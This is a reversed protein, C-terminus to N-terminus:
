RRRPPTARRRMRAAGAAALGVGAAGAGGIAVLAVLPAEDGTQALPAGPAEKADPQPQDPEDVPLADAVTVTQEACNLDCEAAMLDDGALLFAFSVLDRGALDTADLDYALRAELDPGSATATIASRVLAAEVDAYELQLRRLAAHDVDHPPLPDLMAPADSGDPAQAVDDRDPAADEPDPGGADPAGPGALAEGLGFAQGLARAYDEVREAPPRTGDPAAVAPLGTSRDMLLGAVTYEAGPVVGRAVIRDVVAVGPQPLVSRDGDAGDRATTALVPAAVAVAQGEDAIDAHSALVADGRHLEEFAVLTRGALATADLDFAVEAIGDAAEPWFTIEATAPRGTGDLAVGEDRGDLGRVHLEGALRYEQGPVLGEYAVLDIVQAARNAAVLRDGDLGDRAETGIRPRTVTVTQDDNALDADTAVPRGDRHLWEFAVLETGDPLDSADLDFTVTATGFGSDPVFSAEASVAAEGTAVPQGTARNMLTGRVTYEAGPILNAFAVVDRVSAAPDAALVKSGDATVSALSTVTPTIVRVTQSFDELDEHSAALRGARDYLREFAVLDGEGTATADFDFALDVAGRPQDPVFTREARVPADGVLAPRGTARDMLTGELRYAEGPVLNAYAVHDVVRAEADAIVLKDGDLADAATTTLYPTGDDPRGDDITGLSVVHGDRTITIGPITVLVLGENAACPLERLTYTDYPLAGRADDPATGPGFWIGAEPDYSGDARNDNANPRQSHPNWSAATSAYGNADTVLVHAEGTTESELRFPVGALREMTDERVKTLELDGRRVLNKFSDKGAFPDVVEGDRTISFSRPEGDTLLYGEGPAVERIAYRGYPLCDPATQAQGGETVLRTVVQGPAYSVGGVWVAREGANSVEFTSALSASGLPARGGSERDRKEVRVGGRIVSESVLPTRYTTVEDYIGGGTIQRVHTAPDPLYGEPAKSERILVTGLPLVARGAGDRFFEDGSVRHADDPAAHGEEDTRLVWSRRPAGTARAEDATAHHGAYFDVTFEAGALAAAGQPTATGTVSDVKALWLSAADYQPADSVTGGDGVAVTQGPLVEVSHTTADLAYGRPPTTERVTYAGPVLDGSTARGAEDTVLTAVDRGEADTVAYTAGALQYCPNADSLTPNASQKTLSLRGVNDFTLLIQGGGGPVIAYANFADPVRWSNAYIKGATTNDFDPVTETASLQGTLNDRAWRKFAADCGYVADDFSYSYRDSVMVHLCVLYRDYTMPTGDYWTAPWISPDFGYSGPGFYLLARIHSRESELYQQEGTYGTMLDHRQYQGPAPTTKKPQACIAPAGNVSMRGTSYGAYPIQGNVELYVSDDAFARQSPPACLSLPMLAVVLLAATLTRVVRAAAGRPRLYASPM